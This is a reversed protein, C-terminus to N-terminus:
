GENNESRELVDAIRMLQLYKASSLRNAEGWWKQLEAHAEANRNDVEERNRAVQWVIVLILVMVIFGGFAAGIWFM